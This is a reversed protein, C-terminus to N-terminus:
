GTLWQMPGVFMYKKKSYNFWYFTCQMPMCKICHNNFVLGLELKRGICMSPPMLQDTPDRSGVHSVM